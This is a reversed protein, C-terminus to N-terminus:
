VMWATPSHRGHPPQGRRRSRLRPFESGSQAIQEYTRLLDDLLAVAEPQMAPPRPPLDIGIDSAAPPVVVLRTPAFRDYTRNLADLALAAAAEARDRQITEAALAKEMDRNAAATQAYAVLSVITVAVLLLLAAASAASLAPNRRSWRWLQGVPGTRRALIPRDHLFRRLDEALDTPTAYRHAPDRAVAKLVITELDKPIEPNIKRPRPPSEETILRIMHQPNTDPFASRLTVLEYLTMGLSYVDGRVDSVGAFREPPMYKLTGILDGSRTLNTGEIVKAVGFDTVWIAGCGDLLLNSPKIDRHLVGHAHAYALADAVQFGIRAVTQFFERQSLGRFAQGAVADRIIRDLGRGDILQMVYWCQGDEEGVGFVPVISTHHLRAAAQAERRFRSRLKEDGLLHGPMVKIAVRRGLAEEHAEYVVGMGGRGIERVIRFEGVREPLRPASTENPPAPTDDERQPKFQEMMVVAGLVSRIEDALEPYRNAYEDVSPRQGARWRCAFDEALEDVLITPNILNDM